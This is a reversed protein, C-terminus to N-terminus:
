LATFAFTGSQDCLEAIEARCSFEQGTLHAFLSGGFGIRLVVRGREFEDVGPFLVATIRFPHQFFLGAAIGAQDCATCRATQAPHKPQHFRELCLAFGAIEPRAPNVHHTGANHTTVDGGPTNNLAQFDGELVTFHFVDFGGQLPRLFKKGPAEPCRGADCRRLTSQNGINFTGAHRSRVDDDFGNEFIGIGFTFQEFDDLRLHLGIRDQRGIGRRNRQFIQGAHEFLGRSQNSQMEKVRDGLHGQDFDHVVVVSIRLFNLAGSCKTALDIAERQRYFAARTEQDIPHQRGIHEFGHLDM